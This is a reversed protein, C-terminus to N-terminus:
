IEALFNVCSERLILFVLDYSKKCGPFNVHFRFIIWNFLFIM